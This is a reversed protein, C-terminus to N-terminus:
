RRRESGVVKRDLQNEGEFPRDLFGFLSYSSGRVSMDNGLFGLVANSQMRYLSQLGPLHMSEEFSSVPADGAVVIPAGSVHVSVGTGGSKGGAQGGQRGHRQSKTDSKRPFRYVDWSHFRPCIECLSCPGASCGHTKYQKPHYVIEEHSHAFECDKGKPCVNVVFQKSGDPSDIVAKTVYHCMEDAYPFLNPNRRLWGGNIEAHAFGCLSHDHDYRKSCWCTRLHAAEDPTFMGLADTRTGTAITPVPIGINAWVQPASAAQQGFFQRWENSSLQLNCSHATDRIFENHCRFVDAASRVNENFCLLVARKAESEEGDVSDRVPSDEADHRQQISGFRPSSHPTTESRGGPSRVSSNDDYGGGRHDFDIALDHWPAPLCTLMFSDDFMEQAFVDRM